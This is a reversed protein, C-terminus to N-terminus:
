STKRTGPKPKTQPFFSMVVETAALLDVPKLRRVVQLPVQALESVLKGIVKMDVIQENEEEGDTMDSKSKIRIPMGCDMLIGGTMDRFELQSYSQGGLSVPHTLSLTRVISSDSIVAGDVATKIKPNM